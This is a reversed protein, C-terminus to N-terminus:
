DRRICLSRRSSSAGETMVVGQIFDYISKPIGDDDDDDVDVGVGVDMYEVFSYSRFSFLDSPIFALGKNM